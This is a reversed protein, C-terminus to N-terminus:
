TLCPMVDIQHRVEQAGGGAGCGNFFSCLSVPKSKMRRLLVRLHDVGAGNLIEVCERLFTGVLKKMDDHREMAGVWPLRFVMCGFIRKRFFVTHVFQTAHIRLLHTVVVCM